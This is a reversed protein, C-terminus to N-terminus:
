RDEGRDLMDGLAAREDAPLNPFLRNVIEDAIMGRSGAEALFKLTAGAFGGQEAHDIDFRDLIHRLEQKSRM